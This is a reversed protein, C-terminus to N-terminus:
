YLNLNQQFHILAATAARGDPATARAELEYIHDATIFVSAISRGGDPQEVSIQRGHFAKIRAEAYTRLQGGRVIRQLVNRFVAERDLPREKVDAVTLRYAVKGQQVTWTRAPVNTRGDLDYRAQTMVPTAPFQLAFRDEKGIVNRWGEPGIPPEVPIYPPQPKGLAADLEASADNLIYILQGSDSWPDPDGLAEAEHRGLVDTVEPHGTLVVDAGNYSELRKLSKRYDAVIDPYAKNGVLVNGAVTLSCLFLVGHFAGREALDMSWSTCGPTHGPTFVTTLAIPGLRVIEGDRLLHDVKAPPWPTQASPNDGRPRGHELAWVDGPSAMLQAGTDKKLQALAGAQDHHAHNSLLIKVDRLQFGLSTINAEIMPANEAVTGDILVHGQPSAILYAALGKSGVYYVDGVIHFPAQPQTWASRDYAVAAPADSAGAAAVALALALAAPLRARSAPAM